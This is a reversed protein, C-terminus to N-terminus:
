VFLFAHRKNVIELPQVQSSSSVALGTFSKQSQRTCSEQMVPLAFASKIGETTCPAIWPEKRIKGRQSNAKCRTWKQLPCLAPRTSPPPLPIKSCLYNNTHQPVDSTKNGESFLPWLRMRLGRKRGWNELTKKQRFKSCVSPFNKACGSSLEKM